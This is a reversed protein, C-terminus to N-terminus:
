NLSIGFGDLFDGWDPEDGVDRNSYYVQKFFDLVDDLEEDDKINMGYVAQVMSSGDSEETVSGTLFLCVIEDRLDYEDILDDIQQAISQIKLFFVERDM